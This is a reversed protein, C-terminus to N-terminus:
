GATARMMVTVDDFQVHSSHAKQTSSDLLFLADWKIPQHIVGDQPGGWSGVTPDTLPMTIWRWGSWNINEGTPQYVPEERL